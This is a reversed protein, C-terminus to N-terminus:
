RKLKESLDIIEGAYFQYNGPGCKIAKPLMVGKLPREGQISDKIEKVSVGLLRAADTIGIRENRFDGM